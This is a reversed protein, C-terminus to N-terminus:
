SAIVYSHPTNTCPTVSRDCPYHWCQSVVVLLHPQWKVIISWKQFQAITERSNSVMPLLFCALHVFLTTGSIGTLQQATFQVFRKLLPNKWNRTSGFLFLQPNPGDWVSWSPLPLWRDMITDAPNMKNTSSWRLVLASYIIHGSDESVRLLSAISALTVWLPSPQSSTVSYPLQRRLAFRQLCTISVASNSFQTYMHFICNPRILLERIRCSNKGMVSASIDDSTKHTCEYGIKSCWNHLLTTPLWVILM